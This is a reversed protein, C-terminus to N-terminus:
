PTWLIVEKKKFDYDTNRLIRALRAQRLAEDESLGAKLYADVVRPWYLHTEEACGVMAAELIRAAAVKGVGKCGPYNDVLDGTLTQFMHAYDAAAVSVEVVGDDRKNTNYHLGPITQMDKDISVCIKEGKIIRNSTLLIGLTDDGELTPRQFVDYEDKMHQRLAPHLMPRRKGKRNAKYDAALKYRWNAAEDDDSLVIVLKDGKLDIMFSALFHDLAMSAEGFRAHLTWLGGPWETARELAFGFQYAAVDGDFLITRKM